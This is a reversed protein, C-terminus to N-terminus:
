TSPDLNPAGERRGSEIRVRAARPIKCRLQVRPLAPAACM